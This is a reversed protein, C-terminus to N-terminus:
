FGATKRRSLAQAPPRPTRSQAPAENMLNLCIKLEDKILPKPVVEHNDAVIHAQRYILSSPYPM